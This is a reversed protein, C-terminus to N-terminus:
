AAAHSRACAVLLAYAEKNGLRAAEVLRRLGLAREEATDGNRMLRLACAIRARSYGAKAARQMFKEALEPKPANMGIGKACCIALNYQAVANGRRAAKTFAELAKEEDAVVGLGQAYCYGLMLQAAVVGKRAAFECEDFAARPDRDIDGRGTMLRQALEFAAQANGRKAARRVTADSERVWNIENTPTNISKAM